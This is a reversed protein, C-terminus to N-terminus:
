KAYQSTMERAKRLYGDYDDVYLKGFESNLISNENPSTLMMFIQSLIYIVTYEPKFSNLSSLCMHTGSINIHCIPTLFEYNPKENPYNNPFTIRINFKGGNYPSDKPGDMTVNWVNDGKKPEGYCCVSSKWEYFEELEKNLREERSM